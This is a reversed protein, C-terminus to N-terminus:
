HRQWRADPGECWSGVLAFIQAKPYRDQLLRGISASFQGRVAQAVVVALPSADGMEPMDSLSDFHQSRETASLWDKVSVFESSELRGLVFLDKM